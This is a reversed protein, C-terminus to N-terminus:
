TAGGILAKGLQALADKAKAYGDHHDTAGHMAAEATAQAVILTSRQALDLGSRRGAGIGIVRNVLKNVNMHVFRENPSGHALSAIEDHLAHYTPLYETAWLDRKRRLESFAKVLRVKLGRVRDTNRSFTLVLYTQDESLLAFREPRGRLGGPLKETQFRVIGLTEFDALHDNVLEFVSSHRLGLHQALARSDARPETDSAGVILLLQTGDSQGACDPSVITKHETSAPNGGPTQVDPPARLGASAGGTTGLPALDVVAHHALEPAALGPAAAGYHIYHHM